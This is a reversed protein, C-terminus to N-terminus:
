RDAKAAARTSLQRRNLKETPWPLVETTQMSNTSLTAMHLLRSTCPLVSLLQVWMAAVKELPKVLPGATKKLSYRGAAALLSADQSSDHTNAVIAADKGATCGFVTSKTNPKPRILYRGPLVIM